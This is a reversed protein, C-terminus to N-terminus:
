LEHYSHVLALILVHADRRFRTDVGRAEEANLLLVGYDWDRILLMSNVDAKKEV